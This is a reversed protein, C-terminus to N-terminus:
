KISEEIWGLYEASGAIVPVAIIEPVTYPHLTKIMKELSAFLDASTKILLLVEDDRTIRGKWRYLSRIGPLQNVCAALREGLLATAVADAEQQSPCTCLVLIFKNAIM